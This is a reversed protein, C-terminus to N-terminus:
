RTERHGASVIQTREHSEEGRANADDPRVRV